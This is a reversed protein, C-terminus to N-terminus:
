RPRMVVRWAREWVMRKRQKKRKRRKKKTQIQARKM